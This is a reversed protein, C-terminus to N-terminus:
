WNMCSRVNSASHEVIQAVIIGYAMFKGGGGGGRIFYVAEQLNTIM